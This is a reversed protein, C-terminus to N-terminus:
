AQLNYSSMMDYRLFSVAQIALAVIFLLFLRFSHELLCGGFDDSVGKAISTDLRDHIVMLPGLPYIHFLCCIQLFHVKLCFLISLSLDIPDHLIRISPPPHAFMPCSFVKLPCGIPISAVSGAFWPHLPEPCIPEDAFFLAHYTRM